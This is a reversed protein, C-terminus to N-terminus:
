PEICYRLKEEMPSQLVLPTTCICQLKIMSPMKPTFTRLDKNCDDENGFDAKQVPDAMPASELDKLSYAKWYLHFASGACPEFDLILCYRLIFIKSTHQM